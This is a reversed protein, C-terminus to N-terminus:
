EFVLLELIIRRTNNICDNVITEDLEGNIMDDYIKKMDIRYDEYKHNSIYLSIHKNHRNLKRYLREVNKNNIYNCIISNLIHALQHKAIMNDKIIDNNYYSWNM